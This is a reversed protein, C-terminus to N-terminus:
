SNLKKQFNIKALTKKFEINNHYIVDIKHKLIKIEDELDNVRSSLQENEQMLVSKKIM